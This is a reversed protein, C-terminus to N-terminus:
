YMRYFLTGGYAINIEQIGRCIGFIPMKPGACKPIIDLIIGDRDPNTFEDGPFKESNYHHPELNARGGLLVIGHIKDLLGRKKDGDFTM